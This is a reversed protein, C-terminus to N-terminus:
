EAAARGATGLARSLHNMRRALVACAEALDRGTAQVTCVPEGAAIRTGPAPRDAAWHPLADRVEIPAPAYFVGAARVEVGAGAVLLPLDPLEGACADLHLRLLPPLPPADFIDLTAGPRANVEILHWTGAGLILDASALGTLGVSATLRSLASDIEAVLAPEPALPGACGGYRFPAGEAPACWQESFALLRAARGNGLFLASVARGDVREQLYWGPGRAQPSPRVHGGGSGGVRKELTPVGNPAPGSFVRPHPIGLTALGEAFDFPQKVAAIAEAGSGALRYRAGLRAVLDPSDEFGAGLVLPTDRGAHRGLQAFLDDPDLALGDRRALQVSRAALARTDEDAFLDLVLPKLGARRASAALGRAAIGVLVVDFADEPRSRDRSCSPM